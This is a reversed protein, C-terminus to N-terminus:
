LPMDMAFLGPGTLLLSILIIKILSMLIMKEMSIPGSKKETFYEFGLIVLGVLVVAQTYLGLILFIGTVFHFVSSYKYSKHYRQLGSIIAVVGVTVRLLLPAVFGFSLLTPFLSLPHM